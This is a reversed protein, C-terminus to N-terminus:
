WQVSRHMIIQAMSGDTTTMESAQALRYNPVSVEKERIM